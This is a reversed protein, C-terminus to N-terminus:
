TFSHLESEGSQIEAVTLHGDAACAGTDICLVNPRPWSPKWHACHGVLVLGIGAIAPLLDPADRDTRTIRPRPWLTDGPVQAYRDPYRNARTYLERLPEEVDSWETRWDPFTHAIGVTSEVTEITRM